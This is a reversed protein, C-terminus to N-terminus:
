QLLIYQPLLLSGPRAYVELVNTPFDSRKVWCAVSVDREMTVLSPAAHFVAVASESNLGPASSSTSGQDMRCSVEPGPCCIIQCAAHWTLGRVQDSQATGKKNFPMIAQRPPPAMTM